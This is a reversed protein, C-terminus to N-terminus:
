GGAVAPHLVVAFRVGLEDRVRLMGGMVSFPELGVDAHTFRLEGELRPVPGSTDVQVPVLFRRTTARLTVDVTVSAAGSGLAQTSGTLRILPYRSADLVREGLLNTRTGARADDAVPAAFDPGETARAAPDDVIFSAVPLELDFTYEGDPRREVRGQFTRTTLVHNHGLNAM